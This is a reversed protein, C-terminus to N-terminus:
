LEVPSGTKNKGEKISPFIEARYVHIDKPAEIGIKVKDGKRSLVTIEIEDGIKIVGGIRKTLVLM